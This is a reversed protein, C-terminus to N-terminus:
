GSRLLEVHVDGAGRDDGEEDGHNHVRTERRLRMLETRENGPLGPRHGADIDAQGMWRRLWPESILLDRAITANPKERRRAVEVARQRLAPSKPALVGFGEVLRM